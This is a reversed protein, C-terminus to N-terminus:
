GRAEIQASPNPFSLFTTMQLSSTNENRGADADSTVNKRKTMKRGRKEYPTKIKSNGMGAGAVQKDHYTGEEKTEM